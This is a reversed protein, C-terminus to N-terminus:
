FQGEELCLLESSSSSRGKLLVLELRLGKRPLRSMISAMTGFIWFSTASSYLQRFTCSYLAIATAPWDKTRSCVVWASCKHRWVGQVSMRLLSQAYCCRAGLFGVFRSSVLSCQMAASCSCIEDYDIIAQVGSDYVNL